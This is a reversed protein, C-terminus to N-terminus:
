CGDLLEAPLSGFHPTHLSGKYISSESAATHSVNRMVARRQGKRGMEILLEGARREARLKIEVCYYFHGPTGM